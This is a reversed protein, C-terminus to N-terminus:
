KVTNEEHCKAMKQSSKKMYATNAKERGESLHLVAHPWPGQKGTWWGTVLALVPGPVFQIILVFDNIIYIFSSRYYYRIDHANDHLM